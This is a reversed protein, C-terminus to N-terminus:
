RNTEFDETEYTHMRVNFGQVVSGLETGCVVLSSYLPGPDNVVCIYLAVSIM